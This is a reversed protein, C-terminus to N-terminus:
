LEVTVTQETGSTTFTTEGTYAPIRTRIEEIKAKVNTTDNREFIVVDEATLTYLHVTVTVDAGRPLPIPANETTSEKTILTKYQTNNSISYTSTVTGYAITATSFWIYNPVRATETTAESYQVQTVPSNDGAVPVPLNSLQITVATPEELSFTLSTSGEFAAKFTQQAIYTDSGDADVAKVIVTHEGYQSLRINFSSGNNYTNSPPVFETASDLAYKIEYTSLNAAGDPLAVTAEINHYYSGKVVEISVSNEGQFITVNEKNGNYYSRDEETAVNLSINVTKGAPLGEVAITGNSTTGTGSYRYRKEEANSSVSSDSGAQSYDVVESIDIFYAVERTKFDDGLSLSLSTPNQALPVTVTTGGGVNTSFTTKGVYPINDNEKDIARVAITHKGYSISSIEFTGEESVTGTTYSDSDLAYEYTYDDIDEDDPLTICVSVTGNYSGENLALSVTNIGNKITFAESSGSYYGGDETAVVLSLKVTKGIPLDEITITGDTATGTKTYSYRNQEESYQEYQSADVYESLSVAYDVNKFTENSAARASSGLSIFISTGNTTDPAFDSNCSMYAMSAGVVLLGMVWQILSSKKM